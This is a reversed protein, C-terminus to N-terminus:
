RVRVIRRPDAFYVGFQTPSIEIELHEYRGCKNLFDSDVTITEVFDDGGVLERSTNYWEDFTGVRPDCGEAYSVYNREEGGTVDSSVSIMDRPIGNSMIYVGQDHVFLLRPGPTGEDFAMDFETAALAHEVSRILDDTKFICKPM